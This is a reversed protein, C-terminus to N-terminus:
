AAASSGAVRGRNGWASSSWMAIDLFVGLALLLWDFGVMGGPAVAVYTLTTWPALLFGAVPWLWGGFALEWRAPQVIWWMFLAARPGLLALWTVLCCM